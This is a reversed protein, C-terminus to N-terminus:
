KRATGSQETDTLDDTDSLTMNTLRDELDSLEGELIVRFCRLTKKEGQCSAQIPLLFTYLKPIWLVEGQRKNRRKPNEHHKQNRSVKRRNRNATLFCTLSTEM